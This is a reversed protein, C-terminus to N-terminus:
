IGGFIDKFFDPTNKKECEACIGNKLATFRHCFKCFDLYFVDENYPM